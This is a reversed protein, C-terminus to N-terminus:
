RLWSVQGKLRNLLNIHFPERSLTLIGLYLIAGTMAQILNTLLRPGMQVGIFYVSVCM